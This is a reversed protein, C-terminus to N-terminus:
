ALNVPKELKVRNRGNLKAQYMASDARKILREMDDDRRLSSVGLSVTLKIVQMGYAFTHREIGSRIREAIIAAETLNTDSLLIVFEEGGYRFIIDSGRVAHKICDAASSLAMDGCEHGYDDNIKKFYDIDVFILSLINDHRHALQIERNLVDNFATRNNTQTLPDTYALQMAQAFLTANRLPYVLACLLNELLKFETESFRQRRMLKLTGLSLNELTLQYSCSHRTEIGQKIKLEFTPNEYSFGSHPILSQIKQCFIYILEKFELTTQLASSIDYHHLNVAQSAEFTNDGVVALNFTDTKM